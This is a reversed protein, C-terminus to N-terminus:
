FSTDIKLSIKNSRTVLKSDRAACVWGFFLCTGGGGGGVGGIGLRSQCGHVRSVGGEKWTTQQKQTKQIQQIIVFVEQWSFICFAASTFLMFFILNHWAKEWWNKKRQWNEWIENKYHKLLWTVFQIKWVFMAATPVSPLLWILRM